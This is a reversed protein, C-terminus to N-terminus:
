PPVVQAGFPFVGTIDVVPARNETVINDAILPVPCKLNITVPLVQVIGTNMSKKFRGNKLRSFGTNRITSPWGTNYFCFPSLM